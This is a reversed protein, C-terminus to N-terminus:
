ENTGSKIPTSNEAKVEQKDGTQIVDNPIDPLEIQLKACVAHVKDKEIGEDILGYYFASIMHPESKLEDLAGDKNMRREMMKTKFPGAELYEQGFEKAMVIVEKIDDPTWKESRDPRSMNKKQEDKIETYSSNLSKIGEIQLKYLSKMTDEVFMPIQQNNSSNPMAKLLSVFGGLMNDFSMNQPVGGGSLLQKKHLKDTWSESINLPASDVLIRGKFMMVAFDGGGFEEAVELYVPQEEYDKEWVKKRKSGPSKKVRYLKYVIEDELSIEKLGDLTEQDVEEADIRLYDLPRTKKDKNFM